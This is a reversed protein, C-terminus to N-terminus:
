GQNRRLKALSAFPGAASGDDSTGPLEAGPARPYPDLALSLQEAVAEGLDVEGGEAVLEDPTEPDEDGPEAGDPLLRLRVPEEVTQFVPDLTVVCSQVVEARMRGTVGIAGGGPEPRLTLEASLTEVGPIGFRAALAACEEPTATLSLRRGESGVSGLAVRRSFEPSASM